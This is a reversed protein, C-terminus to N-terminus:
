AWTKWTFEKGETERGFGQILRDEGLVTGCAEGM